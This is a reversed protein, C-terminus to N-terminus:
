RLPEPKLTKRAGSRCDREAFALDAIQKHVKRNMRAISSCTISGAVKHNSRRTRLTFRAVLPLSKPGVALDWLAAVIWCRLVGAVVVM